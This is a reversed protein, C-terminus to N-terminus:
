GQPALKLSPRKVVKLEENEQSVLLVYFWDGFMGEMWEIREIRGGIILTM